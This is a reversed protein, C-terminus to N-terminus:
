YVITHACCPSGCLHTRCLKSSASSFNCNKVYIAFLSAVCTKVLGCDRVKDKMIYEYTTLLVNFQGSEVEEKFLRKREDPAGKYVVQLPSPVSIFVRRMCTDTYLADLRELCPTVPVSIEYATYTIAVGAVGLVNVPMVKLVDPAWRNFENVWNSLTSLPVVILFPGNNHKYEMLYCVMSITQITKGTSFV